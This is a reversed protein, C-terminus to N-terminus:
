AESTKVAKTHSQRFAHVLYPMAGQLYLLIPTMVLWLRGGLPADILSIVALAAAPAYFWMPRSKTPKGAMRARLRLLLVQAILSAFWFAVGFLFFGIFSQLGPRISFWNNAASVGALITPMLASLMTLGCMLMQMHKLRGTADAIRDSYCFWIMGLSLIQLNLVIEWWLRSRTLAPETAESYVFQEVIQATIVGAILMAIGAMLARGDTIRFFSREVESKTQRM